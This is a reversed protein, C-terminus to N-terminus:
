IVLYSLHWRVHQRVVYALPVSTVGRVLKLDLVMNDM